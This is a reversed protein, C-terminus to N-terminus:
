SAGKGVAWELLVEAKNIVRIVVKDGWVTGGRGERHGEGPAGKPLMTAAGAVDKWHGVFVSGSTGTTAVEVGGQEFVVM